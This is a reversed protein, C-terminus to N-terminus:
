GCLAPMHPKRNTPQTCQNTTRTQMTHTHIIRRSENRMAVDYKGMGLPTFLWEDALEAFSDHDTLSELVAGLVTFGANSYGYSANGPPATSTWIAISYHRGHVVYSTRTNSLLLQPLLLLLVLLLLLLLLLVVVVVVM